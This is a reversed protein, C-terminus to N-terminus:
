WVLFSLFNSLLIWFYNPVSHAYQYFILLVKFVKLHSQALFINQEQATFHAVELFPNGTSNSLQRLM